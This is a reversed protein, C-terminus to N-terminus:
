TGVVSSTATGHGSEVGRRRHDRRLQALLPEAAQRQTDGVPHLREARLQEARHHHLARRQYAEAAHEKYNLGICLIDTPVLPALLRDILREDTVKMSDFLTGEIRFATQGDVQKGLYARNGSLFRIVRM